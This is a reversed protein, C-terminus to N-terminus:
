GKFTQMLSTTQARRMVGRLAPESARVGREFPHKGKTGPHKVPGTVWDGNILLAKRGSTSRGTAERKVSLRGSSTRTRRSGETRPITHPATDREILHFPGTARILATPTGQFTKVNFTVGINAGSKGVGSLRKPALAQVNNKVLLAAEFVAKENARKWATGYHETKRAFEKVGILQNM